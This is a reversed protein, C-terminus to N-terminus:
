SDNKCDWQPPPCLTECIERQKGRPHWCAGSCSSILQKTEIMFYYNPTDICNHCDALAITKCTTIQYDKNLFIKKEGDYIVLEDALSTSVLLMCLSFVISKGIKNMM